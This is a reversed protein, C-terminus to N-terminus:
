RKDLPIFQGESIKGDKVSYLTVGSPIKIEGEESSGIVASAQEYRIKQGESEYWFVQRAHYHGSLAIPYNYKDLISILEHANSVTHRFQLVGKERELTRSLGSETFTTLSLGGSFFPIHNFTIIPTGSSVTALDKKMWAVQTSDVHGYYWLDEFDVDDLGIFHVGGYNFSYYNPGLYHHYMKKGYLPHSPSVLSLHREIGFNEHNGPVSWVPVAFKQIEKVYLEYYGTAEKESVRLADRVLDGTIIVFDPKVQEVIARLKEMRDISKESIHTDSAHIFKFEQSSSTKALPFDITSNGSIKQWNSKLSKYGSPLSIFVFGYGQAKLQYAGNVDTTATNVQDSVVVGKIGEESKDKLGNSNTDVFVSGTIVQGFSYVSALLLLLTCTTKM